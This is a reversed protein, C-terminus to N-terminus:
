EPSGLLSFIIIRNTLLTAKAANTRLRKDTFQEGDGSFLGSGFFITRMAPGM